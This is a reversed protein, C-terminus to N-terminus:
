VRCTDRTMFGVVRMSVLEFSRCAIAAVCSRGEIDSFEIVVLCFERKSAFVHIHTTSGTMLVLCLRSVSWEYSKFWEARGALVAMAILLIFEYRSRMSTNPRSPSEACAEAWFAERLGCPSKDRSISQADQWRVSPHVGMKSSGSKSWLWCVRNASVPLWM